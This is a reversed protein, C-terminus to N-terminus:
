SMELLRRIPKVSNSDLVFVGVLLIQRFPSIQWTNDVLSKVDNLWAYSPIVPEESGLYWASKKMRTMSDVTM